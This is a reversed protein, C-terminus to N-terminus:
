STLHGLVKWKIMMPSTMGSNIIVLDENGIKSSCRIEKRRKDYSAFYCLCCSDANSFKFFVPGHTEFNSVRAKLVDFCRKIM